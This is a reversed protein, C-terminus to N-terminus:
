KKNNLKLFQIFAKRFKNSVVNYIIPNSICHLFYILSTIHSVLSIININSDDIILDQNWVFTLLYHNLYSWCLFVRVPLQFCFFVITISSIIITFKFKNITNNKFERKNSIQRNYRNIMNTNYNSIATSRRIISARCSNEKEDYEMKTDVNSNITANSRATSKTSRTSSTRHNGASSCPKRIKISVNEKLTYTITIFMIQKKIKIIIIIYLILLGITPLFIFLVNLAIIYILHMLTMNLQCVDPNSSFEVMWLFPLSIILGTLWISCLIYFSRRESFM